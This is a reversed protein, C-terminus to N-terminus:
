LRFNAPRRTNVVDGFNAVSASFDRHVLGAMVLNAELIRLGEMAWIEPIFADNDNAYCTICAVSVYLLNM